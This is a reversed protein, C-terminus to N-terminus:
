ARKQVELHTFLSSDLMGGIRGGVIFSFSDLRLEYFQHHLAYTTFVM